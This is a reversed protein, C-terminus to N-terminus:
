SARSDGRVAISINLLLPNFRDNRISLIYEKSEKPIKPSVKFERVSVKIGNLQEQTLTLFKCSAVREIDFWESTLNTRFVYRYKRNPGDEVKKRGIWFDNSGPITVFIKDESFRWYPEPNGFEVFLKVSEM